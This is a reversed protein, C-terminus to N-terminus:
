KGHFYTNMIKKAANIAVFSKAGHEVMVCVAIQPHDYPAYCIFNAHDSGSNEATGTKGAVKIDFDSLADYSSAALYMSEQVDRLNEKSVGMEDAPQPSSQYIVEDGSYSVIRDVVHTRLRKGDNAITAAYAALQLPTFQNDSQGIAAPSVFSQYWQSGMESSYEPGALTGASEAVEVGTKVGLGCRRAYKEINEIGVLRGTEAFFVNCSHKMAEYLDQEGHFGMCRLELGNETYIGGCSIRTKSTIKKEQLAAAAVLPKFTSGPTLAGMFARDFLPANEDSALKTYDEYYESLDFSPYNAACLVSFDRVNLVVAAAGRCDGGMNKDGVQKSYDNAEKVAEKLATQAKKQLRSDITLYVSNGPKTNIEEKLDVNGDDGIEYTRSGDSGRLYSEFASEIGSKGLRDNFAYGKSKLESYEEASIVGTVGVIHPAVTGNTYTRVAAAEVTVGRVGSIRESLASMAEESLGEAFIYPETNSYGELEMNYRVSVIDRLREPSSDSSDYRKALLMMCEEASTDPSLEERSLLGETEDPMNRDFYFKGSKDTKIPLEDTRKQGCLETIEVLRSITENLKDEEIFLRNFVVRYGTLNVALGVGNVDYIEGRMAKTPVTYSTSSAALKKYHESELVQWQFLRATFLALVLIVLSLLFAYRRKM